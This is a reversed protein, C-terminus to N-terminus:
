VGGNDSDDDADILAGLRNGEAIEEPTLELESVEPAFTGDRPPEDLEPLVKDTSM